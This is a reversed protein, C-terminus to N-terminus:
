RLLPYAAPASGQPIYYAPPNYFPQLVPISQGSSRLQEKTPINYEKILKLITTLFLELISSDLNQSIRKKYEEFIAGYLNSYYLNVIEDRSPKSRKMSSVWEQLYGLISTINSSFRIMESILRNREAIEKDSNVAAQATSLVERFVESCSFEKEMNQNERFFRLALETNGKLQAAINFKYTLILYDPFSESPYKIVDTHLKEMKKISFIPHDPNITFTLPEGLTLNHYNNDMEIVFHTNISGNNIYIALLGASKSKTGLKKLKVHEPNIQVNRPFGGILYNNDNQIIDSM